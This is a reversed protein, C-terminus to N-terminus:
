CSFLPSALLPSYGVLGRRSYGGTSVQPDFLLASFDMYTFTPIFTISVKGNLNWRLWVPNAVIDAVAQTNLVASTDTNVIKVDGPLNQGDSTHMYLSVAKPGGTIVLDVTIGTTGYFYGLTRMAHNDYDKANRVDSDPVSASRTLNNVMSAYGPLTLPPVASSVTFGGDQAM